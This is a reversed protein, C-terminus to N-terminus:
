ELPYGKNIWDVKINVPLNLLRGNKLGADRMAQFAPRINPCHAFPCCGCYIVISTSKPLKAIVEKFKELNEKERAAGMNRAGKINNVVGINFILPKATTNSKILAALVSPEILQSRSWPDKDPQLNESFTQGFSPLSIVVWMVLTSFIAKMLVTGFIAKTM